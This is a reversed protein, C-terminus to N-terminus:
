AAPLRWPCPQVGVTFTADASAKPTFRDRCLVGLRCREEDTRHRRCCTCSDPEACRHAIRQVRGPRGVRKKAPTCEVRTLFHPTHLTCALWCPGSEDSLTPCRFFFSRLAVREEVRVSGSERGDVKCGPQIDPNPPSTRQAQPECAHCGSTTRRRWRAPRRARLQRRGAGGGWQRM